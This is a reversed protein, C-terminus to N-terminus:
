YARIVQYYGMVPESVSQFKPEPAPILQVAAATLIEKDRRDEVIKSIRMLEEFYNINDEM